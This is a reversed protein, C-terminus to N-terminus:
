ITGFSTMTRLTSPSSDTRSRSPPHDAIPNVRGAEQRQIKRIARAAAPTRMRRPCNTISGIVPNKQGAGVAGANAFSIVPLAFIARSAKNNTQVNAANPSSIAYRPYRRVRPLYQFSISLLKNSQFQARTPKTQSRSNNFLDM